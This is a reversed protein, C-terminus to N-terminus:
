MFIKTGTKISKMESKRYLKAPIKINFAKLILALDPDNIDMFMYLDEPLQMVKWKNLADQIREASLGVNWYADTKEGKYDRIKKQIIRTIILSILCILLHADVHEPARVYVSRTELTSKMVRFQDEIQTLSHYKDIVERDDM